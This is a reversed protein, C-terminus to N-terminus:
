SDACLLLSPLLSLLLSPPISRCEKCVASQTFLSCYTLCCWTPPPAHLYLFPFLLLVSSTLILESTHTVSLYLRLSLCFDNQFSLCLSQLSLAFSLSIPPPTAIFCTITCCLPFCKNLNGGSTDYPHLHQMWHQPRSRPPM